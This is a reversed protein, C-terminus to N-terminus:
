THKYKVSLNVIKRKKYFNLNKIIVWMFLFDFLLVLREILDRCGKERNSFISRDYVPWQYNAVLPLRCLKLFQVSSSLLFFPQWKYLPRAPYTSDEGAEVSVNWVSGPSWTVNKAAETDFLYSAVWFSHLCQFFWVLWVLFFVIFRYSNLKM